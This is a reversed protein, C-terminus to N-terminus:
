EFKSIKVIEKWYVESGISHISFLLETDLSIKGKCTSLEQKTGLKTPNLNM